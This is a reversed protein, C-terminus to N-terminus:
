AEANSKGELAVLQEHMEKWERKLSVVHGEANLFCHESEGETKLEGNEGVVRYSMKYKVAGYKEMTVYILVTEGYYCSQKYRCSVSLVPSLFGREETKEYPADAQEFFDGRAEEFWRIYNSHHVFGMKDTEYYQVKHRYPKM